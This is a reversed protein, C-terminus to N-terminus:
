LAEQQNLKEIVSATERQNFLLFENIKLHEKEIFLGISTVLKSNIQSKIQNANRMSSTIKNNILGHKNSIQSLSSQQSLLKNVQKHQQLTHNYIREFENMSQRTQWYRSPFEQQLQWALVGQVRSLRQQYALTSRSTEPNEEINALANKAKEMRTLLKHQTIDAFLEGDDLLKAKELLTTIQNKKEALNTLREQYHTNKQEDRIITQRAANLEITESLWHSKNQQTQLQESIKEVSQLQQYLIAIDTQKLSLNLWLGKSNKDDDTNVAERANSENLSRYFSLLDKEATLTKSFAALEQQKTKYYDEIQLYRNLAKNLQNKATFQQASLVWAQQTFSAYPYHTILTSLIVEAVNYKQLKFASYGFLFLAKESFPTNKPFNELQQYGQKFLGQEIYLQALLLQAYQNIGKQELQKLETLSNNNSVKETFLQQWFNGAEEQWTFLQLRKLKEETLAFAQQNMERLAANLLIYATANDLDNNSKILLAKLQKKSIDNLKFKEVDPKNPWAILQQMVYYQAQYHEPLASINALINQAEVLNQEAIKQEALQLFVIVKLVAKKLKTERINHASKQKITHSDLAKTSQRLAPEKTVSLKELLVQADQHLGQSIQLGATFLSEHIPTELFYDQNINLQRLAKDPKNQFYFYLAQRYFKESLHSPLINGEPTVVDVSKRSLTQEQLGSQQVKAYVKNTTLISLMLVMLCCTTLLFSGLSNLPNIVSSNIGSTNQLAVTSCERVYVGRGIVTKLLHKSSLGKTMILQM